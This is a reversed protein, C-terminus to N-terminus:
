PQEDLYQSWDRSNDGFVFFFPNLLSDKTNYELPSM